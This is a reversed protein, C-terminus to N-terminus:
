ASFHNSYRDYRLLVKSSVPTGPELCKELVQGEGLVLSMGSVVDDDIPINLRVDKEQDSALSADQTADGGDHRRVDGPVDESSEEV